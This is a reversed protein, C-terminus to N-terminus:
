MLALVFIEMGLDFLDRWTPKAAIMRYRVPIVMGVPVPTSADKMIPKFRLHEVMAVTDMDLSSDLGKVIHVNQPVGNTDIVLSVLIRGPIRSQPMYRAIVEDGNLAELTPHPNRTNAKAAIVKEPAEPIFTAFTVPEKEVYEFMAVATGEVAVPTSGDRLAAKFRWNKVAEMANSDLEPDLGRVVHINQPVGNADIMVGLFCPGRKLLKGSVPVKPDTLVMAMPASVHEGVEEAAAAQALAASVTEQAVPPAVVVLAILPHARLTFRYFNDDAPHKERQACTHLGVTLEVAVATASGDIVGPKFRQGEVLETAFGVLRRDSAELTTLARPLGTADITAALKVVGDFEDCHKPTSVTLTPSLLVPPTLRAGTPHIPVVNQQSAGPLCALMLLSAIVFGHRM